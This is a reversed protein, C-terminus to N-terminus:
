ALRRITAGSRRAILLGGAMAIWAIASLVVMVRQETSGRYRVEIRTQASGPMPHLVLFGLADKTVGITRGDQVAHWGPDANVQLEVLEGAPVAGSVAVTSTDPWAVRLAPRSSDRLAAVYRALEETRWRVDNPLEDPRVLHALARPPLAYITDDELHYATSLGALRQPKQFDRFYERSNPGHIVVYEAGLAELNSLADESEQGPRANAGTRVRYDLHPLLRNSLGTDFSGGVQAIEFWSNLRFRLGGMAYVRGQPPHQAIWEALKYEITTEKPVPSWSGWGQTAYTWIQPLGVLVYVCASGLACMRVTQNASRLTRRLVEMGALAFFLEFELSYRHSEPITDAHYVYFATAIWGFTFAGLAVLRFFFSAEFWRFALRILVAGAILGGLLELQQRQLQYGYSDVPWNFAITKIFSPTLWFCALLYALGAAAFVRWARFEPEGWAALLLLLCSIALGMAAVWNTLPILALLLAAVVLRSYTRSKAAVWVALLSLPLLTVGTTHPGEGYKALARIRWPLQVLGRDRDVAPFLLSSPSIFSYALAAAFSWRRSKTFYLAFLFLTVPGLCAMTAVIVRYVANVSAHPWLHVFGATTYLLAPVYMFQAPMGCYAFPNWGWPNPHESVFRAMGIYGGEISGRFPMEGPMFLPGNVWVNVAFIALALLPTM